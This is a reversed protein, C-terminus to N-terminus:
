NATHSSPVTTDITEQRHMYQQGFGMCPFNIQCQWIKNHCNVVHLITFQREIDQTHHVVAVVRLALKTTCTTHSRPQPGYLHWSLLSSDISFTQVGVKMKVWEPRTRQQKCQKDNLLRPMGTTPRQM